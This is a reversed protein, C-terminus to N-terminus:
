ARTTKGQSKINIIIKNMYFKKNAFKIICSFVISTNWHSILMETHSLFRRKTIVTQKPELFFHGRFFAGWVRFRVIGLRVRVRGRVGKPAKKRPSKIRVGNTEHESFKLIPHLSLGWCLKRLYCVPAIVM